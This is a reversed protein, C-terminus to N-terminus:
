NIHKVINKSNIENFAEEILSLKNFSIGWHTPRNLLFDFSIRYFM